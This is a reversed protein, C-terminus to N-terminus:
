SRKWSDFWSEHLSPDPNSDGHVAAPDAPSIIDTTPPFLTKANTASRATSQGVPNKLKPRTLAQVVSGKLSDAENGPFSVLPITPSATSALSKPSEKHKGWRFTDFWNAASPFDLSEPKQVKQNLNEVKDAQLISVATKGVTTRGFDLLSSGPLTSEPNSQSFIGPQRGFQTGFENQGALGNPNGLFGNPGGFNGVVTIDTNELETLISAEMLLADFAQLGERM